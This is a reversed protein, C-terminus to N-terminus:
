EQDAIDNHKPLGTTCLESHRIGMSVKPASRLHVTVNENYYRGPGPISVNMEPLYHRGTITYSPPVNKTSNLEPYYLRTPTEDMGYTISM